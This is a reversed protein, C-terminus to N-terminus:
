RGADVKSRHGGSTPTLAASSRERSPRRRRMLWLAVVLLLVGGGIVFWRLAPGGDHTSTRAADSKAGAPLQDSDAACVVPPGKLSVNACAVTALRLTQKSTKSVTAQTHLSTKKGPKLDITWTAVGAKIRGSADASDITLGSPATQSVRLGKVAEPGLNKVVITYSLDDGVAAAQHGDNVAISLQPTASPNKETALTNAGAPPTSVLLFALILFATGILRATLAGAHTAHKM